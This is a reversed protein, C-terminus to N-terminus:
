PWLLNRSSTTLYKTDNYGDRIREEGPLASPEDRETIQTTLWNRFDVLSAQADDQKGFLDKVMATALRRWGDDFTKPWPMATTDDQTGQTFPDATLYWYPYTYVKNPIPSLKFKWAKTSSDWFVYAIEPQGTQTSTYLDATEQFRIPDTTFRLMSLTSDRDRLWRQDLEAFATPSAYDATSATTALSGLTRRFDWDRCTWLEIAAARITTKVRDPVSGGAADADANVQGRLHAGLTTVTWASWSTTPEAM